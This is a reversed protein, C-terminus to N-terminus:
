ELTEGRWIYALSAFLILIFIAAELTIYLDLAKHALAWPLLFTAEVYCLVFSMALTYYSQKLQGRTKEPDSSGPADIMEPRHPASGKRCALFALMPPAVGFGLLIILLAGTFSFQDLM